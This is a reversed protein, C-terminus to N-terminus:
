NRVCRRAFRIAWNCGVSPRNALLWRAVLWNTTHWDPLRTPDAFRLSLCNSPRGIRFTPMNLQRRVSSRWFRHTPRTWFQPGSTPHFPRRRRADVPHMTISRMPPLHQSKMMRRVFGLSCVHCRWIQWRMPIIPRCSRSQGCGCPGRDPMPFWTWRRIRTPRGLM